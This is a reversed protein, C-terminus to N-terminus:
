GAPAASRIRELQRDDTLDVRLPTMSAYGHEVVWRDTGEDPADLPKVVFWFHSRGMPDVGPVVHGDYQRVSQRTWRLGRARDSPLNVNVLALEEDALLLRLAELLTPQHIAFDTEGASVPVSFAIGRVGFLVAQRAASLTGSHWVGNGMNSGLNVGSLVVSVGPWQQLGLAVCDAPTGDVRFADFTSVVTRRATLPRSSTISHGASSREVDPAVIQVEGFATAAEALAALGPSYIGDDNTILLRM